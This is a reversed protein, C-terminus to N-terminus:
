RFREMKFHQRRHFFRGRRRMEQLGTVQATHQHVHCVERDEHGAPFNPLSSSQKIFDTNRLRIQVDTIQSPSLVSVDLEAARTNSPTTSQVNSVLLPALPLPM